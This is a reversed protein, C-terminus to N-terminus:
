RGIAAAAEEAVRVSKSLSLTNKIGHFARSAGGDGLAILTVERHQERDFVFVQVAWAGTITRKDAVLEVDAPAETDLLGNTSSEIPGLNAGRFVDALVRKIQPVTTSTNFSIEHQKM